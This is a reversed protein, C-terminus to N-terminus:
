AHRDRIGEMLKALRAQAAEKEEPSADAPEGMLIAMFLMLAEEVEAIRKENSVVM